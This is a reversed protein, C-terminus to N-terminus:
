SSSGTPSAGARPSKGLTQQDEWDQSLTEYVQIGYIRGVSLCVPCLTDRRDSEFRHTCSENCCLLYYTVTPVQTLTM